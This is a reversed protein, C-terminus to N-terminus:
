ETSITTGTTEPVFKAPATDKPVTQISIAETEPVQFASTPSVSLTEEADSFDNPVTTVAGKDASVDPRPAKEPRLATGANLTDMPPIQPRVYSGMGGNLDPSLYYYYVDTGATSTMTYTEMYESYTDAPTTTITTVITLPSKDDYIYETSKKKECGCLLIASLIIFLCYKKMIDINYWM